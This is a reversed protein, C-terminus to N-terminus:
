PVRLHMVVNVLAGGGSGVRILEIGGMCGCGVEQIDMKINDKWRHMPIWLPRKGEAKGVLVEICREQGGYTSCAGGM